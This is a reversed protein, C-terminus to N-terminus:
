KNAFVLQWFIGFEIRLLDLELGLFRCSNCFGTRDKSWDGGLKGNGCLENQLLFLSSIRSRACHLCLPYGQSQFLKAINASNHTQLDRQGRICQQEESKTRHSICNTATLSTCLDGPFKVSPCLQWHPKHRYLTGVDIRSCFQNWYIRQIMQECYNRICKSLYPVSGRLELQLERSSSLQANYPMEESWTSNRIFSANKHQWQIHGHWTEVMM